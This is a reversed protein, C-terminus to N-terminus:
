EELDGPAADLDKIGKIYALTDGLAKTLAADAEGGIRIRGPGGTEHRAAKVEHLVELRRAKADDYDTTETVGKLRGLFNALLKADSKVVGAPQDDFPEDDDRTFEDDPVGAVGDDDSAFEDDPDGAAPADDYAPRADPEPLDGGILTIMATRVRPMHFRWAAKHKADAQRSTLWAATADLLEAAESLQAETTLLSLWYLWHEGAADPWLERGVGFRNAASRIAYSLAAKRSNHVAHMAYQDSSGYGPKPPLGPLTLVATCAHVFYPKGKASTRGQPEDWTVDLQWQGGTAQDLRQEVVAAGAVVLGDESYGYSDPHLPRLLVARDVDSM